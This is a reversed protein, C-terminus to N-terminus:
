HLMLESIESNIDSISISIWTNLNSLLKQVESEDMKKIKGILLLSFKQIAEGIISHIYDSIRNAQFLEDAYREVDKARNSKEEKLFCINYLCRVRDFFTAFDYRVESVTLLRKENFM